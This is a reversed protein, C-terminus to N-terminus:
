TDGDTFFNMIATFASHFAVYLVFEDKADNKVRRRKSTATM